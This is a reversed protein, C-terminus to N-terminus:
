PIFGTEPNIEINGVASTILTRVGSQPTAAGSDTYPRGLYDFLVIAPSAGSVALGDLLTLTTSGESPFVM